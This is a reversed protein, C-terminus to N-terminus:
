TAIDVATGLSGLGGELSEGTEKADEYAQKIANYKAIVEGDIAGQSIAAAMAVTLAAEIDLSGNIALGVGIDYASQLASPVAARASTLAANKLSAGKGVESLFTIGVSVATGIGPFNSAMKAIYSVLQNGAANWVDTLQGLFGSSIIELDSDNDHYWGYSRGFWDQWYGKHCADGFGGDECVLRAEGAWISYIDPIPRGADDTGDESKATGPPLFFIRRYYGLAEPVQQGQVKGFGSLPQSPLKAKAVSLIAEDDMLQIGKAKCNLRALALYETDDLDRRTQATYLDFLLVMKQSSALLEDDKDVPASTSSAAVAVVAGALLLFVLPNM